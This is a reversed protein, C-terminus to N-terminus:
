QVTISIPSVMGMSCTIKYTGKKPTFKIINQGPKLYIYGDFLGRGSMYVGCGQIGQNDVILTTEIGAKLTTSGNPIYQFGRATLSLTQDGNLDQKQTQEQQGQNPQVKIDNLSPLGLVNLQGNINYFVFFVILIGAIQNFLATSKPKENMKVGSISIGLLPLFTGLAFFLMVMSGRLFDGSALAIGQAILTFGCPIFFTAAGMVFPMFRGAFKNENSISKTFSKPMAFRLKQVWKVELMQLALIFMIISILIIFIASITPNNFTVSKGILGLIGGLLAFSIIRGIHFMTHPLSKQKPSQGIYMDNWQKSMSLLMGGVLAACSSIGAVLGLTFYAGLSFGVNVNIYRGLQLRDVAVFIVIVVTIILGIKFVKNFKESNVTLAGDGIHFLPSEKDSKKKKSFTYGMKEFEKNLLSLDLEEKADYYIDVKSDQLSAEVSTVGKQAIIFKEILLECSACHM